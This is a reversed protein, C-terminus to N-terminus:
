LTVEALMAAIVRPHLGAVELANCLMTIKLAQLEVANELETIYHAEEINM